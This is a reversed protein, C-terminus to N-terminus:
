PLGMLAAGKLGKTLSSEERVVAVGGGGGGWGGTFGGPRQVWLVQSALALM